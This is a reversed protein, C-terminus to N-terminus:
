WSGGIQQVKGVSGGEAELRTAARPVTMVSIALQERSSRGRCPRAPLATPNIDM